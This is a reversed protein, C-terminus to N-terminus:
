ITQRSTKRSIVSGAKLAKVSREVAGIMHEIQEDTLHGFIPLQIQEEFYLREAVPCEGYEYGLARFEALLHV